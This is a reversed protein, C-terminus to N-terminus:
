ARVEKEKITIDIKATPDFCIEKAIIDAWEMAKNVAEKYNNGWFNLQVYEDKLPLSFKLLYNKLM